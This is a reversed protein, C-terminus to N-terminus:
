VSRWYSYEELVYNYDTIYGKEKLVELMSPIQTRHYYNGRLYDSRLYPEIILVDGVKFYLTSTPLLGFLDVLAKEYETRIFFLYPDYLNIGDPFYRTFVTCTETLRKLWTQIKRSSIRYKRMLPKYFKRLDYKFERYLIDDEYDWSLEEDLHFRLPSESLQLPVQEVVQRMRAISKNWEMRSPEAVCYDSRIGEYVPNEIKLPRDSVVWINPSGILVGTYLVSKEKKFDHYVKLKNEVDMFYIYERVNAYSRIRVQPNTIIGQEFMTNMIRSATKEHVNLKNSISKYTIRPNRSSFFTNTQVTNRKANRYKTDYLVGM